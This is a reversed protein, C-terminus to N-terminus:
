LKIWNKPIIDLTNLSVQQGFWLKPAIVKKQKNENLWAGWWSFSSNAIINNKCKSMIFLDEIESMNEMFIMDRFNLNNKCWDIDDSFVFIYDYEGILEIAEKYYDLSQVPHYGNSTLYDTRRIHISITNSDLLPTKNIVELTKENPQFDNRILDSSEEFYKESQWYGDLYYNIDITNEIDKYEFSDDIKKFPLSTQISNINTDIITNSFNDLSFNRNSGNFFRDDLYFKRNYKSSLHRGIAYQFMQNGLGGQLKSVIM